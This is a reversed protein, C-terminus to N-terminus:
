PVFEAVSLDEDVAKKLWRTQEIPDLSAVAQHHSFSLNTLRRVSPIKEAVWAFNRISNDDYEQSAKEGFAGDGYRILDGIWFQVGSNARKVFQMTAGGDM